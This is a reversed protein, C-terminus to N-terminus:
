RNNKASLLGHVKILTSAEQQQKSTSICLSNGPLTAMELHSTTLPATLSKSRTVFNFIKNGLTNTPSECSNISM